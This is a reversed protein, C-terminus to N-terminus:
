LFRLLRGVQRSDIWHVFALVVLPTQFSPNLSRLYRVSSSSVFFIQLTYRITKRTSSTIRFTSLKGSLRIWVLDKWAMFVAIRLPDLAGSLALEIDASHDVLAHAAELNKKYHDGPM